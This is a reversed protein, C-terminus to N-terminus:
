VCKCLYCASLVNAWMTVDSTLTVPLALDQLMALLWVVSPTSACSEHSEICYLGSHSPLGMIMKWVSALDIM